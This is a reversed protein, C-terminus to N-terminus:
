KEEGKFKKLEKKAKKIFKGFQRDAKRREYSAMNYNEAEKKLNIYNSYKEEDLNGARLEELVNCGPEHVHTCDNYKCDKALGTIETFLNDVGSVSIIGVERMGPNDIVIGGNQLFYMHRSTTIHKGRDSCLSIDGTEIISTGLLKNILTSKGVGSSGLFCYTKGRSLYAKLEELGSNDITSTAIIGIDGFREKLRALKEGLEEKSILDIKNIIIAPKVGGENLVSFYREFRNLNFDRDISEVIFAENINTGIIQTGNKEGARNKDGHRRKIVTKRPLVASIVAQGNELEKIAVWDGVVPYDEETEAVFMLKGTIKALFEGNQSVVKYMGKNGAIVRAMAYDQLALKERNSEFFEDYGLEKIKKNEDKMKHLTYVRSNGGWLARIEAIRM